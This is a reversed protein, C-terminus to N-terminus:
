RQDGEAIWWHIWCALCHSTRTWATWWLQPDLFWDPWPQCLLGRHSLSSGEPPGAPGPSPSVLHPIYFPLSLDPWTTSTSNQEGQERPTWQHNYKHQSLLEKWENRLHLITCKCHSSTHLTSQAFPKRDRRQTVLQTSCCLLSPRLQHECNRQPVPHPHSQQSEGELVNLRRESNEFRFDSKSLLLYSISASNRIHSM